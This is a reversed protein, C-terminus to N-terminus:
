KLQHQMANLKVGRSPKMLRLEQIAELIKVFFFIKTNM